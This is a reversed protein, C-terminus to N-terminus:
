LKVRVLADDLLRNRVLPDLVTGARVPDSSMPDTLVPQVVNEALVDTLQAVDHVAQQEAIRRSVLAAAFAVLVAVAVAAIATVFVIRRLRVTGNGAPSGGGETLVVEQPSPGATAGQTTSTSQPTM